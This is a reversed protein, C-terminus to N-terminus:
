DSVIKIHTKLVPWLSGPKRSQNSVSQIQQVTPPSASKGLFFM